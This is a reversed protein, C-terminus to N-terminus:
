ARPVLKPTEAVMPTIKSVMARALPMEVTSVPPATIDPRYKPSLADGADELALRTAFTVWVSWLLFIRRSSLDEMTGKTM